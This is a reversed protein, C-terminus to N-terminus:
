AFPRGEESRQFQTLDLAVSPRGLITLIAHAQGRHHTQHNFFHDLAPALRQSVTRMDSVTMYSFRGSLAKESLSGIWDVIRKDEAERALRLSPLARHLITDLRAPADGEGTFRRMWIRDATLIHNLTGMMSGFFAGVNRDFEEEGLDAAADYIRNNAWQNYGAFMMFHQKM